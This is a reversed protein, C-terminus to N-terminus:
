RARRHLPSFIPHRSRNVTAGFGSYTATTAPGPLDEYDPWTSKGIEGSMVDVQYAIPQLAAILHDEKVVVAVRAEAVGGSAPLIAM